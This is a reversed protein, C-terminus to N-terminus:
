TRGPQTESQLLHHATLTRLAKRVTQPHLRCVRAINAVSPWASGDRGARRAIHCYVRFVSASLGYDDLRSHIFAISFESVHPHRQSGAAANTQLASCESQLGPTAPPSGSFLAASM